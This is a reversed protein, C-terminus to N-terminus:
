DQASDFVAVLRKPATRRWAEVLLERLQESEVSSLRIQTWGFRGVYPAFTYTEPDTAILEAQEEPSTKVTITPHEPAGMVFIKNRVRWTREGEWAPVEETEPLALALAAVQDLTTM